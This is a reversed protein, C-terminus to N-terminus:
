DVYIEKGEQWIANPKYKLSEDKMREKVSVHFRPKEDEIKRGRGLNPEFTSHWVGKSDQWSYHLPVIELIWWLINGGKFKLQDHLPMVADQKDLEAIDKDYISGQVSDSEKSESPMSLPLSPIDIPLRSLAEEGFLVGCQASIVQRIMWRLTINALSHVETNPVAGGGVDGHCGAFWVELVDPSPDEPPIDDQLRKRSNKAKRFLSLFGRKRQKSTFGADDGSATPRHYLNAKFKVRREDLSVAHRFTRVASNSNTFPLTKGMIVGVSSVTDWVGIFEVTVTSCYTKKFGAALTIGEDDTRKYLKYAFPIQEFNDRPLLGVKFLMGALARATYSGRSFGFLCIKDGPKYNQMIFRYGETVHASLYWAFAEDLVMAGWQLFPSVVGPDFYTGIGAQYYCLQEDCNDKKLLSFFKVVNTNDGDYESSTGDFCLVLTRSRSSSAHSSSSDSM